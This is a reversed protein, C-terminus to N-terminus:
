AAAEKKKVETLQARSISSKVQEFHAPYEAPNLGSAMLGSFARDFAEKNQTQLMKAYEAIHEGKIRGADPLSEENIEIKLGAEKAGSILSAIRSGHVFRGVGSYVVVGQVGKEQALRGLYLGTLFSGPISKPSGKWGFKESLDRSSAACLTIDGSATARLIQGYVYKGSIRVSLFSQRGIIMGRRKRYDTKGERRRRFIQVYKNKAM